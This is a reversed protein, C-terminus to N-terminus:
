NLCELFGGHREVVESVKQYIPIHIFLDHCGIILLLEKARSFAVNVRESTKAFGVIGQSNNRVMSVIIVSKEMGQFRDVTGTRIDLNPFRNGRNIREDILQLQAGYFTIIGIEKRPEGDIVKKKWTQNMQECV